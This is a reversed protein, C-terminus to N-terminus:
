LGAFRRLRRLLEDAPWDRVLFRPVQMPDTRERVVAPFNAAVRTFGFDRCLAVSQPTYDDHNGFPYSFVDIPRGTWEQLMARSRGIEDRQAEVALSALPQHWVTHAGLTVVESAGMRVVEDVDMVRHSWRSPTSEPFAERLAALAGERDAVSLRKLRPHLDQYLMGREEAIAGDYARKLEVVGLRQVRRPGTGGNLLVRELEDWWFERGSGVYGTTIFFTAPVGVSELIPLANEINDAYGDDFTIAVAPRRLPPWEQEFRLVEFAERLAQMHAAFRDPRVALRQPDHQLECVRHYILVVMPMSALNRVRERVHDASDRVADVYPRLPRLRRRLENTGQRLM